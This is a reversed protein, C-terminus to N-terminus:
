VNHLAIRPPKHICSLTFNNIGMTILKTLIWIRTRAKKELIGNFLIRSLPGDKVIKNSKTLM